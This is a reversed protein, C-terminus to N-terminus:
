IGRKFWTIIRQWISKGSHQSIKAVFDGLCFIVSGAVAAFSATKVFDHSGITGIPKGLRVSTDSFYKNAKIFESLGSLRSGGGTVVVQQILVKDAGCNYVHEQVLDLLESLRATIISNLTSKSVNQIHEEGYEDIRSVLLSEDNLAAGTSVGYLIKLREANSKTTRLVVAIDNTIHQSGLQIAGLYLPVGDHMCMISTTSGGIDIFTIGSAIEDDLATALAAAYTSSTFGTVEINNRSLCSTINGLLSSPATMVHLVARLKNGVMGMPDQLNHTDDISYSVPFTHIVDSSQGVFAATDFNLLSSIHVDDVPLHGIDIETEIAHSAIAWTPLAVFASKISRQAEKEASSIAEMMSEELEELNTITNRKIGKALQYGVGIVRIEWGFGLASETPDKKEGRAIAACVTNTGLGLVVVEKKFDIIKRM